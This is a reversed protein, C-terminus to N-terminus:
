EAGQGKAEWMANCTVASGSGSRSRITFGTTTKSVIYTWGYANIDSTKENTTMVAFGTDAYPKLLTVAAAGSSSYAVGGQELWGSKYKRYWNGQDDSYSEVVYDYNAPCNSLDANAKGSLAGTFEAAQVTSAPVAANFAYVWPYLTTHAPTVTDSAGYIPNFASASWTKGGANNGADALHNNEAGSESYLPCTIDPLGAGKQTIGEAATASKIYNVLKPLRLSGEVEDVVYYPCEGYTAIASDYEAKTKCLEPHSKVWAYFDPYLTSANVYYEGTWLPLCGPNDTALNSQSLAVQGISLGRSNQASQAADAAYKKASYLDDEVPGDTQTAWNKAANIQESGKNQVESVQAAGAAEIAAVQEAGATEVATKQTTGAASVAGVQKTGEATIKEQETRGSQETLKKIATPFQIVDKEPVMGALEITHQIENKIQNYDNATITEAGQPVFYKDKKDVIYM